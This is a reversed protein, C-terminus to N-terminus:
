HAVQAQFRNIDALLLAAMSSDVSRLKNHAARANELKKAATLDREDLYLYGLLLLAEGNGSWVNVAEKYAAEAANWLEKERFREGLDVFQYSEVSAPTKAVTSLDRRPPRPRRVPTRPPSKTGARGTDSPTPQGAVEPAASLAYCVVFALLLLVRRAKHSSRNNTSDSRFMHLNLTFPFYVLVGYRVLTFTGTLANRANGRATLTALIRGV